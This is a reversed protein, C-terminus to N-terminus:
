NEEYIEIYKQIIREWSLDKFDFQNIGSYDKEFLLKLGNIIGKLDKSDVSQGINLSTFNDIGQGRSYLLPLGQSLAEGYVLGFTEKHSVMTFFDNELFFQQLEEKDKVFGHYSLWPYKAVLALTKEHESGNGGVLNLNIDFGEKQVLYDLAKILLLVNKNKDFRGVFLCNYKTDKSKKYKRINNLWFEDLGNNILICKSSINQHNILNFTKFQNLNAKSIFIIKSAHALVKNVQIILDRRYKYFVNLDTGRIAVIYPIGFEKYLKYALFGDSYLTTAHCIKIDEISIKEILDKYLFNIKNLFLFRHHKQRPKSYVFVTKESYFENVGIKSQNVVPVYVIQKVGEEDLGKCLASHVKTNNFDNAIHLM